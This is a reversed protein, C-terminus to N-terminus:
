AQQFRRVRYRVNEEDSLDPTFAYNDKVELVMAVIAAERSAAEVTGTVVSRTDDDADNFAIVYEFFDMTTDGLNFTEKVADWFLGTVERSVIGDHILLECLSSYNATRM